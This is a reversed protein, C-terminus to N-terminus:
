TNMHVEMDGIMRGLMAALGHPVADEGYHVTEIKEALQALRPLQARHIQHYRTEIHDVLAAPDDLPAAPDAPLTM